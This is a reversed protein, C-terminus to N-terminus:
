LMFLPNKCSDPLMKKRRDEREPVYQEFYDGNIKLFSLHGPTKQKKPKRSGNANHTGLKHTHTLSLPMAFSAGPGSVLSGNELSLGGKQSGSYVCCNLKKKLLSGQNIKRELVLCNQKIWSTYLILPKCRTMHTHRHIDTNLM